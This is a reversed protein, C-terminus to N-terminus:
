VSAGFKEALTAKGERTLRKAQFGREILWEDPYVEPIPDYAAYVLKQRLGTTCHIYVADNLCAAFNVEDFSVGADGRIIQVSDSDCRWAILEDATQGQRHLRGLTQEAQKADRPWQVFFQQDFMEQMGDRGTGHAAISAVCVRSANKPDVIAENEGAPCHLANVNHERLLEMLWVGLEINQVWIVAGKGKPLAQAWRVAHLLKYPSVRIAREWREPMGEFELDKMERWLRFLEEGVDRAGYRAMSSGVLMPSDLNPRSYYKLWSRLEKHYAQKKVHHDRAKKLVEEATSLPCNKRESYTQADPWYLENYFGSSLEYLWKWKHIAWEIEDGGPTQWLQEVQDALFKLRQDEPTGGFPAPTNAMTLSTGIEQDGTSIVGPASVLRLRFAARFGSVNMSYRDRIEPPDDPKPPDYQRAWDILPTLPGAQAESPQAGSDLVMGWETALQSSLPLPCRDRLAAKALHWYDRLKKGTITGSLFACQPGHSALYRMFRKGRTSSPDALRHAEDGIILGPEIQELLHPSKPHSFMEYSVVYCGPWPQELLKERRNRSISSSIRHFHVSVPLRARAFPIHTRFFQDLVASPVLLLSRQGGQRHYREAIMVDIASKGWGVGIPCFVGGWIDYALGAQAQCNHLRFGSEFASALLNARNFAELEEPELPPVYPLGCIRRVEAYTHPAREELSREAARQLRANLSTPPPASASVYAPRPSPPPSPSQARAQALRDFASM